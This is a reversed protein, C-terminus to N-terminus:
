KPIYWVSDPCGQKGIMDTPKYDGTVVNGKLNHYYWIEDIAGDLCGIYVQKGAHADALAAEVDTLKYQQKVSPVIGANALFEETPFNKHLEVVKKYFAIVNEFRTYDGTFCEPLLTNMCTGHKNYEHEWLAISRESEVNSKVNNIWHQTMYTYLEQEGFVDIMVHTINDTADYIELSPDCYQGYSGNCFDNWLGHITFSLLVDDTPQIVTSNAELENQEAETGNVAISLYDANYDWFQTLMLIGWNEFCCSQSEPISSTNFCSFENITDFYNECSIVPSDEFTDRAPVSNVVYYTTEQSTIETTTYTVCNAANVATLGLLLGAISKFM